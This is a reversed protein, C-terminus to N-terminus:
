QRDRTHCELLKAYTQEFIDPKCPYFEGNVGRIIWDGYDARMTGELTAITINNDQIMVTPIEGLFSDIWQYAAFGDSKDYEGEMHFADIVVPKKRYEMLSRSCPSKKFRDEYMVDHRELVWIMYALGLVGFAVMVLGTYFIINTM